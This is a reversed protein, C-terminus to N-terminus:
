RRCRPLARSVRAAGFGRRRYEPLVYLIGMSGELHEGVFGVWRTGEYGLLISQREVLAGLVDPELLHYHKTLRPLDSEDAPRLILRPDPAPKEGFYAVQRCDLKDTFGYREFTAAGLFDPVVLLDCKPPVHRDLLNIGLAADECALLLAGSVRDRILLADERQELVDGSGRKLVRDLGLYEIKTLDMICM